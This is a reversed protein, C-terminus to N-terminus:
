EMAKEIATILAAKSKHSKIEAPDMGLKVAYEDLAPRKMKGLDAGEDPWDYEGSLKRRADEIASEDAKMRAPSYYGQTEQFRLFAKFREGKNKDSEIKTRLGDIIGINRDLVAPIEATNQIAQIYQSFEGLEEQKPSDKPRTPNKAKRAM